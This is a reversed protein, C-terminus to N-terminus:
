QSVGTPSDLSFVKGQKLSWESIDDLRGNCVLANNTQKVYADRWMQERLRWTGRMYQDPDPPEAINSKVTLAAPVPVFSTQYRMVPQGGCGALLMTAAALATLTKKM